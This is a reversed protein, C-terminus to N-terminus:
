ANVFEIVVPLLIRQMRTNSVHMNLAIRLSNISLSKMLCSDVVTAIEALEIETTFIRFIVKGTM